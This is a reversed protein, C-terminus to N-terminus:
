KVKKLQVSTFIHLMGKTEPSTSEVVVRVPGDELKKFISVVQGPYSYDGGIKTVKDGVALPNGDTDFTVLAVRVTVKVDEPKTVQDTAQQWTKKSAAQRDLPEDPSTNAIRESKIRDVVAQMERIAATVVVNQSPHKRLKTITDELSEVPFDKWWDAGLVGSLANFLQSPAGDPQRAPAAFQSALAEKVMRFLDEPEM